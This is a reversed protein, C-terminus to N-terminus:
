RRVHHNDAAAHHPMVGRLHGHAQARVDRDDVPIQLPQALQVVDIGALDHRQGRVLVRNAFRQANASRTIPATSIGPADAGRSTRRSM